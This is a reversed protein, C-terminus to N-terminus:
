ISSKATEELLTDGCPADPDLAAIGDLVAVEAADLSGALLLGAVFAENLARFMSRATMLLAGRQRLSLALDQWGGWRGGTGSPPQFRYTFAFWETITAVM